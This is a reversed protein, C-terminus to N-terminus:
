GEVLAGCRPCRIESSEEEVLKPGTSEIPVPEDFWRFNDLNLYELEGELLEDDWEALEGTKNDLIRYKRKQDEDLGTIVVCDAETRGMEQLARLRTHGALIVHNEDVIIPAVVGVQEMSVVVAEVARDNLRPNNEYPVIEDLSLTVAKRKVEM